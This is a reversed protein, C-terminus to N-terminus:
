PVIEAVSKGRPPAEGVIKSGPGVPYLKMPSGPLILQGKSLRLGLGTLREALWRLSRIPSANAESDKVAEVVVENIRISLSRVASSLGLYRTKEEALVVGAHM